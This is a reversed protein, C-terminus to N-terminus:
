HEQVSEVCGPLKLEEESHSQRADGLFPFRQIVNAAEHIKDLNDVLDVLLGKREKRDCAVMGALIGAIDKRAGCAARDASSDHEVERNDVPEEVFCPVQVVDELQQSGCDKGALVELSAHAL